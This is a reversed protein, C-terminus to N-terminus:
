FGFFRTVVAFAQWSEPNLGRGIRRLGHESNGQAGLHHNM